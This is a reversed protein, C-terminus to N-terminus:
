YDMVDIFKEFIVMTSYPYAERDIGKASLIEVIYSKGIVPLGVSAIGRIVGIGKISDNMNFTVISNESLYNKENIEM